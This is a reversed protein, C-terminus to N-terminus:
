SYRRRLVDREARGAYREGAFRRLGEDAADIWDRNTGLTVRHTWPEPEDGPVLKALVDAVHADEPRAAVVVIRGMRDGRGFAAVSRPPNWRLVSVGVRELDEWAITWGRRGAPERTLGSADIVLRAGVGRSAAWLCFLGFLVIVVGIVLGVVYAGTDGEETTTLTETALGVLLALGVAVVVVGALVLRPVLRAGLDIVVDDPNRSATRASV